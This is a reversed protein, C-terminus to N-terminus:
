SDPVSKLKETIGKVCLHESSKRTVVGKTDQRVDLLRFVFAAM